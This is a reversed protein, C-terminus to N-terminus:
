NQEMLLLTNILSRFSSYFFDYCNRLQKESLKWLLIPLYRRRSERGRRRRRRTIIIIIIIIIIMMIINRNSGSPAYPMRSLSQKV